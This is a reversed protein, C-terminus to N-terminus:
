FLVYCNQCGIRHPPLPKVTCLRINYVDFHTHTYSPFFHIKTSQGVHQCNSFVNYADSRQVGLIEYFSLFVHFYRTIIQNRLM